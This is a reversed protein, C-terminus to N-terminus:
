SPVARVREDHGNEADMHGDRYGDMYGEGYSIAVLRRLRKCQIGQDYGRENALVTELQDYLEQPIQCLRNPVPASM